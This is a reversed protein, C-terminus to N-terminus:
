WSGILLKYIKGGQLAFQLILSTLLICSFDRRSIKNSLISIVIVYLVLAHDTFLFTRTSSAFITPSFGMLVRDCVACAVMLGLFIKISRKIELKYFLYIMFIIFLATWFTGITGSISFSFNKGLFYTDDRGIWIHVIIQFILMVIGGLISVKLKGTTCMLLTMVVFVCITNRCFLYYHVTTIIGMYIKYPTNWDSYDEIWRLEKLFRIGNGDCTITFYLSLSAVILFLIAGKRKFNFILCLISSQFMLAALLEQNAAIILALTAITALCIDKLGFGKLRSLMVYSAFMLYLPFLYNCITTIFGASHFTKLPFLFFISFIFYHPLIAETRDKGCLDLIVMRVLLPLSCLCLACLIRFLFSHHTLTVTIADLIIRSSWRKYRQMLWEFTVSAKVFATDDGYDVPIRISFVLFYLIVFISFLLIIKSIRSVDPSFLSINKLSKVPPTLKNKM